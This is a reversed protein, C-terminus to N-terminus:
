DQILREVAARYAPYDVYFSLGHHAEPVSLFEVPAACHKALEEAMGHPVTADAQGHIILVPVKIAAVAELATTERIDFGGFLRAGLRTFSWALGEPMRQRRITHRLVGEPTSYGCDAWIGKVQEPLGEGAAMLVTAAGMSIGVLYIEQEEGFRETAWHIWDLVDFREKIGFTITTGESEGHGRQDAMMASWGNERCISFGGSGDREATSRYGHFFLLLPAGARGEYYKGRLTLGDRSRIKVREFPTEVLADINRVSVERYARDEEPIERIDATRKPDARFATDYAYWAGGLVGAGAAGFIAATKLLKEKM